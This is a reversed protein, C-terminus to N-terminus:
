PYSVYLFTDSLPLCSIGGRYGDSYIWCIVGAEKDIFRFVSNNFSANGVPLETLPISDPAVYVAPACGTLLIVLALLILVKNM